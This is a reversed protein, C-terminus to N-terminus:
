DMFWPTKSNLHEKFSELPLQIEILGAAYPGIDYPNYYIILGELNLKYDYVDRKFYAVVEEDTLESLNVYLRESLDQSALVVDKISFAIVEDMNTDVDFLDSLSILEGTKLDYNYSTNGYNGHAAGLGYWYYSQTIELIGNFESVDFGVSSISYYLGSEEDLDNAVDFLDDISNNIKKEVESDSYALLPYFVPNIGAGKFKTLVLGDELTYSTSLRKLIKDENAYITYTGDYSDHNFVIIDGIVHIKFPGDIALDSLVKENKQVDLFYYEIGDYVYFTDDKVHEIIYFDFGTLAEARSFIAKKYTQESYQKYNLDYDDFAAVAFYNEHLQKLDYYYPDILIHGETDMLGLAYISDYYSEIKDTKNGIVFYDEVYEISDYTEETLKIGEKLISLSEDLGKQIEFATNSLIMEFERIDYDESELKVVEKTQADFYNQNNGDHIQLFGNMDLYVTMEKGFTYFVHGKYDLINQVEEQTQGFILDGGGIFLSKYIGFPILEQGLEDIVGIQENKSVIAFGYIEDFFVPQDYQFDIIILNLNDSSAYGWKKEGDIMKSVPLLKVEDVIDDEIIDEESDSKENQDNSEEVVNDVVNNIDNNIAEQHCSIMSVTLMGIVILKNIKM